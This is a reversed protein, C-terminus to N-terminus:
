GRTVCHIIPHFTEVAAGVVVEGFGEVELFKERSQTSERPARGLDARLQDPNAIQREVGGIMRDRPRTFGDAEGGLLVRQEFEQHEVLIADNAPFLDRLVHPILVEIRERVDDIHIDPPQTGFDIHTELPREEMRPPALSVDECGSRHGSIILLRRMWSVAQYRSNKVSSSM